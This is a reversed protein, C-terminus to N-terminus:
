RAGNVVYEIDMGSYTFPKADIGGISWSHLKGTTRIDVKRDTSPNFLVADSWRTAGGVFEQSGARIAVSTTGEMHPYLRVISTVNRQDGFVVGIRELYTYATTTEDSVSFNYLGGDSPEIGVLGHSFPSSYDTNWNNPITDWTSTAGSWVPTVIYTSGYCMSTIPRALLRTSFKDNALDYIIATDPYTANISPFCFWVEKTREDVVAYSQAYLTGNIL